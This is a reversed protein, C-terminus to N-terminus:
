QRYKERAEAAAVCEPLDYYLGGIAGGGAKGRTNGYTAMEQECEARPRREQAVCAEVKQARLPALKKERAAECARDLRTFRDLEAESQALVAAPLAVLLVFLWRSTM